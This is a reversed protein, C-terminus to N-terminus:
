TLSLKVKSLKVSLKNLKTLNLQRGWSYLIRDGDWFGARSSVSIRGEFDGDPLRDLNQGLFVTESGAKGHFARCSLSHKHM